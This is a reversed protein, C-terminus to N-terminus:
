FQQPSGTVYAKGDIWVLSHDLWSRFRENIRSGNIRDGDFEPARTLDQGYVDEVFTGHLVMTELQDRGTVSDKSRHIVYQSGDSNYRAIPDSSHTDPEAVLAAEIIQKGQASTTVNGLVQVFSGRRAARESAARHYGQPLVVTHMTIQEDTKTALQFRLAERGDEAGTRLESAVLGTFHEM